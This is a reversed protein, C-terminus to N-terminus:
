GLVKESAEDVEITVPKIPYFLPEFQRGQAAGRAAEYTSYIHRLLPVPEHRGGDTDCIAWAQIKM